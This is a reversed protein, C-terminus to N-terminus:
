LRMNPTMPSKALNGPKLAVRPTRFKPGVGLFIWLAKRSETETKAALEKGDAKTM